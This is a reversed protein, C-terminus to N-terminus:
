HIAKELKFLAKKYIVTINEKFLKQYEKPIMKYMKSTKEAFMRCFINLCHKTKDIDNKLQAQFKDRKNNFEVIKVVNFVDKEFQELEICQEPFSRSKFGYTKKSPKTACQEKLLFWAKWRMRRLVSEIKEVLKIRYSSESPMPIDKLSYDYSLKEM